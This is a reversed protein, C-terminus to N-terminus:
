ICSINKDKQPSQSLPIKLSPLTSIIDKRVRSSGKSQFQEGMKASFHVKLFTSKHLQYKELPHLYLYVYLRSPIIHWRFNQILWNEEGIAGM